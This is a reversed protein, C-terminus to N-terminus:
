VVSKRDRILMYLNNFNRKLEGLYRKNTIETRYQKIRNAHLVSNEDDRELLFSEYLELFSPISTTDKNYLAKTFLDKSTYIDAM